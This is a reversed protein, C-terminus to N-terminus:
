ENFRDYQTTKQKGCQPCKWYAVDSEKKGDKTQALLGAFIYNFVLVGINVM